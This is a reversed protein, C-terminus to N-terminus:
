CCLRMERRQPPCGDHRAFRHCTGLRATGNRELMQRCPQRSIVFERFSRALGNEAIEHAKDGLMEFFAFADPNGTEANQLDPCTCGAHPSIRCGAFSDFDFCRKVPSRM